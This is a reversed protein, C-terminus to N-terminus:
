TVQPGQPSLAERVKPTARQYFQTVVAVSGTEWCRGPDLSVM